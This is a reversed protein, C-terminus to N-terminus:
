EKLPFSVVFWFSPEPSFFGEFLTSVHSFPLGKEWSAGAPQALSPNFSSVKGNFGDHGMNTVSGVNISVLLIGATDVSSFCGFMYLDLLGNEVTDSIHLVTPHADCLVNDLCFWLM